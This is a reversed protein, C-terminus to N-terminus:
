DSLAMDKRIEVACLSITCWRSLMVLLFGIVESYFFESACYLFIKLANLVPSTWLFAVSHFCVGACKGPKTKCPLSISDELFLSELFSSQAIRRASIGKRRCGNSQGHEDVSRHRWLKCSALVDSFSVTRTTTFSDVGM